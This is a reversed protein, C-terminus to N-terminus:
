TLEGVAVIVDAAMQAVEIWHILCLSQHEM